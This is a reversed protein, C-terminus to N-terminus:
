RKTIEPIARPHMMKGPDLLDDLTAESLGARERALERVKRGTQLAELAIKAAADYGIVPVLATVLGISREALDRCRSVDATIGSVCRERLVTLAKTLLTLSQFLDFAILPEFANLELQGGQAALTIAVDNAIVQFCVQNVVEPIVPNVKGPMITSGPQVPPLHIEGFGARPGSSLLRLDNCVKSLKVAIRKLVGSLQVFAGADSTAEVLNPATILPLGTIKILEERVRGAYGAVTNVGTGIATAGLNMEHILKSAERLREIDEGVTVAWATFEQGLTMPVADQMQTRGMKIVEKFEEGKSAFAGELLHMASALDGIMWIAALKLATPYVDNTSQSLNVHNNPHCFAYDGRAKGLMELARNSIVENANMNTSTGAGGQIVDVVFHADLAGSQVERSAGAIAGGLRPDLQGLDMNARAAAEKIAGLARVLSRYRSIPLGTIPFNEVARMTQVGYYAEAPVQKEGLSDHEVRFDM